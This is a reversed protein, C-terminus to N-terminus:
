AISLLLKSSGCVCVCILCRCIRPTWCTPMSALCAATQLTPLAGVKPLRRRPDVQTFSADTPYRSSLHHLGQLNGIAATITTRPWPRAYLVLVARQFACICPTQWATHSGCIRPSAPSSGPDSSCVTSGVSVGSPSSELSRGEAKALRRAQRRLHRERQSRQYAEHEQLFCVSAKTAFETRSWGSPLM